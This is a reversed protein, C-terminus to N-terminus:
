LLLLFRYFYKKKGSLKVRVHQVIKCCLAKDSAGCVTKSEGTSTQYSSITTDIVIDLANNELTIVIIILKTHAM